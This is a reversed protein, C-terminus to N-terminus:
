SAVECESDFDPRFYGCSGDAKTTYVLRKEMDRVVRDVTYRDGNEAVIVDGKVLADARKPATAWLRLEAPSLVSRCDACLGRGPNSAVFLKEIGCRACVYFQQTRGTRSDFRTIM